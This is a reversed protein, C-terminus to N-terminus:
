EVTELKRVLVSLLQGKKAIVREAKLWVGEVEVEEGGVPLEGIAKVLLGGVTDVDDDSLEIELLEAVEDLTTRPHMRYLGDPLSEIAADDQDYEDGIEGVLEEILDEVTVIGAVGGYEDVVVAIQLSAQQMEQLLEAVSKSEPTFLARRAAEVAKKSGLLSPAKHVVRAVDKLYLVGLVDDVDEGVVPLRSYGTAIFTSLADQLLSDADVVEMDVRPVMVERVVTESFEEVSDLLEQEYAEAVEPLVLRVPAVLNAWWSVFKEAQSSVREAFKTAGLRRGAVQQITWISLLALALWAGQDMAGPAYVLWLSALGVLLLARAISLAGARADEALELRSQVSALGILAASVLLGSLLFIM